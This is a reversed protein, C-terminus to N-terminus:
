EWEVHAPPVASLDYVVRYVRPTEKMIREAARELVDQPLRRVHITGEGSANVARLIVVYRPVGDLFASSFDALVAFAQTSPKNQGSEELTERLIEDAQRLAALKEGDVAGMCRLAIGASPYHQRKVVTEPVGLIEAIQRVEDKFLLRLPEIIEKFDVHDPLGGVNHHSKIVAADGTGSEVVDAYITGQALFDVKGIKKAEEEFVRIFEEGIIKRKKEPESVGALKSLFRDEANVRVFNIDGNGFVAEIEDGENKRMLGHDVFICTLQSGIAKSLLKAVVSSDVGGSLALLVKGDGVKERVQAIATNCYDKMSWDGNAGCVNYLFNHLMKSGNQTHEVEPHYQFGFIKKELNQMAAVPCHETHAISVFGEPLKDVYDVHSMWTVAQEPLDQFLPSTTDFQTVTKGFERSPATEVKGGLTHAILQCGYCLGLVPIGLEFIQPDIKPANEAYVSNPGGTFILGIPSYEQIKEVTAKRFPLIECYVGLDRVRRAILQNYQGGFDLILVNQHSM